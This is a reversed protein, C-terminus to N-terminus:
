WPEFPLSNRPTVTPPPKTSDLVGSLVKDLDKM